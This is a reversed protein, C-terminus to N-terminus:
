FDWIGAIVPIEVYFDEFLDLHMLPPSLSLATELRIVLLNVPEVVPEFYTQKESL